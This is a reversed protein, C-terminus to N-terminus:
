FKLSFGIANPSLQPSITINYKQETKRRFNNKFQEYKKANKSGKALATVIDTLWILGGAIGTSLSLKNMFDAQKYTDEREQNETPMIAYENYLSQSRIGTFYSTGLCVLTTSTVGIFKGMQKKDSVAYGGWGPLIISKLAHATGNTNINQQSIAESLLVEYETTSISPKAPTNNRENAEQRKREAEQEALREQEAELEAQKRAEAQRQAEARAKRDAEQQALIREQEEKEKKIREKEARREADERAEREAKQRPSETVTVTPYNKSNYTKKKIGVIKLVGNIYSIEAEREVNFASNIGSNYTSYGEISKNYSVTFFNYKDGRYLPSININYIDFEVGTREFFLDVNKLYTIVATNNSRKRGPILDDEIQVQESEFSQEILNDIIRNREMNSLEKRGIENITFEYDGIISKIQDQLYVLDDTNISNQAHTNLSNTILIIIFVLAKFLLSHQVYKSKIKAGNYMALILETHCAQLNIRM